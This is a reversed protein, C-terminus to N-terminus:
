FMGPHGLEQLMHKLGAHVQALLGLDIINNSKEEYSELPAPYLMCNLKSLRITHRLLDKQVTMSITNECFSLTMLQSCHSLAPLLDKLQSDMIGCDDLYLDQLTPSARELLLQLPGSRINTLNLRWLNLVKLQSVNLHQSLYRLDSELLMCSTISLTELPTKLCSLIQDMRGKLISVDHLYLEQLCSLRRFQSTFLSVCHEEQELTTHSSMFVHSLLFRRLNGM